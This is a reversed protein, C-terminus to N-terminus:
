PLGDVAEADSVLRASDLGVGGVVPHALGFERGPSSCCPTNSMLTSVKSNVVNTWRM